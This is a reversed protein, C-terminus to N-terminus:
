LSGSRSLSIRASDGAGARHRSDASAHQPQQVVHRLAGEARPQRLQHPQARRRDHLPPSLATQLTTPLLVASPLPAEVRSSSFRPFRRTRFHLATQLSLRRHRFFDRNASQLRPFSPRHGPLRSHLLLQRQQRCAASSDSPHLQIRVIQSSLSLLPCSLLRSSRWELSPLRGHM